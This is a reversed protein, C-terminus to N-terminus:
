RILPTPNIEDIPQTPKGVPTIPKVKATAEAVAQQTEFSKTSATGANIISEVWFNLVEVRTATGNVSTNAASQYSAIMRDLESDPNFLFEKSSDPFGDQVVTFTVTAM